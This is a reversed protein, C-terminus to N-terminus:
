GKREQSPCTGAAGAACCFGGASAAGCCAPRSFVGAILNEVYEYPVRHYDTGFEGGGPAPRYDWLPSSSWSPGLSTTTVAVAGPLLLTTSHCSSLRDRIMSTNASTSTDSSRSAIARLKGPSAMSASASSPRMTRVPVADEVPTASCIPFIPVGKELSITFEM